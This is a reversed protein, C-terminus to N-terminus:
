KDLTITATRIEKEQLGFINKDIEVMVKNLRLGDAVLAVDGDKDIELPSISVVCKEDQGVWVKM